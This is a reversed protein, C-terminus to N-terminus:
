SHLLPTSHVARPDGGDVRKDWGGSSSAPTVQFCLRGDEHKLTFHDGWGSGMYFLCAEGGCEAEYCVRM